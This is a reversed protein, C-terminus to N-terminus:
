GGFAILVRLQPPSTHQAAPKFDPRRPYLRGSQPTATLHATGSAQFTVIATQKTLIWLTAAHHALGSAQFKWTRPDVSLPANHSRSASPSSTQFSTWLSRRSYACIHCRSIGSGDAQFKNMAFSVIGINGRVRSFNCGRRQPQPSSFRYQCLSATTANNHRSAGPRSPKFHGTGRVIQHADSTAVALFPSPKFCGTGLLICMRRGNLRGPFPSGAQFTVRKM